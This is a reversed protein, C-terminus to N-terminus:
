RYQYQIGINWFKMILVIADNNWIIINPYLAGSPKIMNIIKAM